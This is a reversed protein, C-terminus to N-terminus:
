DTVDSVNRKWLSKMTPFVDGGGSGSRGGTPLLGGQSDSGLPRSGGRGSHGKAPRYARLLGSTWQQQAPLCPLLSVVLSVGSFPIVLPICPLLRGVEAQLGGPAEAPVQM